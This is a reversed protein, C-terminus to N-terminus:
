LYIENAAKKVQIPTIHPFHNHDMTKILDGNHLEGVIYVHGFAIKKKYIFYVSEFHNKNKMEKLIICIIAM